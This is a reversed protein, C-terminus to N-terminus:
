IEEFLGHDIDLNDIVWYGNGFVIDHSLEQKIYDRHKRPRVHLRAQGEDTVELEPFEVHVLLMYIVKNLIQHLVEEIVLLQFLQLTENSQDDLDDGHSMEKSIKPYKDPESLQM